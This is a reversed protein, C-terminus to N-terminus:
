QTIVDVNIVSDIALPHDTTRCALSHILRLQSYSKKSELLKKRNSSSVPMLKHHPFYLARTRRVSSCLFLNERFSGKRRRGCVKM